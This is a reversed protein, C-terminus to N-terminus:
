EGEDLPVDLEVGGSDVPLKVEESSKSSGLKQMLEMKRAANREAELKQLASQQVDEALKKSSYAQDMALKKAAARKEAAMKKAAETADRERQKLLELNAEDQLGLLEASAGEEGLAAGAGLVEEGMGEESSFTEFGSDEFPDSTVAHSRRGLRKSKPAAEGAFVAQLMKKIGRADPNWYSIGNQDLPTGPVMYKQFTDEQIASSFQSSFAILKPISMDTEVFEHVDLLMFPLKFFSTHSQMKGALTELFVQQRAIRGLDGRADHRFRLYQLSEEGSLLHPGKQLDMFFHAARDRYVMRSPIDVPVGGVYDVVTKIGNPHIEIYYDIPINLLRSVSEKLLNVGGHAYSHNIKTRGVGKVSVYSDRPVSIMSVQHTAKNVHFVMITDSRKAGPDEDVGFVLINVSKDLRPSLKEFFVTQFLLQTVFFSLGFGFVALFFLFGGLTIWFKRDKVMYRLSRM